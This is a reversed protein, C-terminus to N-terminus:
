RLVAAAYRAPENLWGAAHAAHDALWSPQLGLLVAVAALVAVSGTRGPELPGRERGVPHRRLDDRPGEFLRRWLTVVALLIGFSAALAVVVIVPQAELLAARLIVLKGVFGSTPPVGVLSLGAVLVAASLIPRTRDVDEDLADRATGIGLFAATKVLVDQVIFFVGAAIATTGALGLGLLMFGAQAVLVFGLTEEPASRSVAAVAGVLCTAAALALLAARLRPDDHLVLAHVRYVAAVGVTTLLGAFLGAVSRPVVAYAVPLWGGVPILASKVALGTLIMAGAALPPATSREALVGMNVTGTAAYIWAVATLVLMSGLLNTAIYVVGARVQRRTGQITALVYSAALTMELVVFLHFLDAALFSGCAGALLVLMVPALFPHHDEAGSIAFVLVAASLVGAALVLLAAFPDGILVIAFRAPVDGVVARLPREDSSGLMVAGAVVVSLVGALSIARQVSRWRRGLAGAAAAAIPVVVPILPWVSM